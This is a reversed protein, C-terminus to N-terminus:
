AAEEVVARFDETVGAGTHLLDSTVIAAKTRGDDLLLIVAHLSGRVGNYGRVHGAIPTGAPPTIDIKAVAARLNSDVKFPMDDARATLPLLVSLILPLRSGTM